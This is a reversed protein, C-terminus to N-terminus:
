KMLEKKVLVWDAKLQEGLKEAASATVKADKKYENVVQRVLVRYKTEDVLEGAKKVATIKKRLERGADEYIDVAKDQIDVALKKIDERTEKGSKPALLLGAVAGAVAGFFMGKFFAMPDENRM